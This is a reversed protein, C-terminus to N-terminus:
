WWSWNSGAIVYKKKENVRPEPKLAPLQDNNVIDLGVKLILEKVTEATLNTIEEKTLKIM